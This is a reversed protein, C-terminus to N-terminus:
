KKTNKEAMKSDEIAIRQFIDQMCKDTVSFYNMGFVSAQTCVSKVVDQKKQNIELRIVNCRLEAETLTEWDKVFVSLLIGRIESDKKGFLSTHSFGRSMVREVCLEVTDRMNENNTSM